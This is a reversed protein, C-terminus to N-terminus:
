QNAIDRYVKETIVRRQLLDRAVGSPNPQSRIYRIREENSMRKLLKERESLNSQKSERQLTRYLSEALKPDEKRIRRIENLKGQRSEPLGDYVESTTPKKSMPLDRYNNTIIDLIFSSSVGAAKMLEVRREEDIGFKPNGMAEYNRRLADFAERNLRNAWEYVKAKESPSPDKYKLSNYETKAAKAANYNKRITERASDEVNFPNSRLGLQRIGVDKLTQDGRGFKAKAVKELEGSFGPKFTETIFFKLKDRAAKMDDLENTIPKGSDKRNALTNFIEQAVFSGEGVLEETLLEILSEESSGNLGAQLASYGLAHPSIYSPNATWGSKGDENLHVMVDRNKDWPAYSINRLDNETDQDVGSLAKVGEIAGATTGYVATLAALRKAGERKMAGIDARGLGEGEGYTGRLMKAITKGQNYQNRMFESTFSAFQPMVGWRSLTRITNSLKDYNQYTDNILDAAAREVQEPSAEPYVKNLMRQNAKWGVYRGM